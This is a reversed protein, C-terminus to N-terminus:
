KWRNQVAFAPFKGVREPESPPNMEVQPVVIATPNTGSCADFVKEIIDEDFVSNRLAEIFVDIPIANLCYRISMGNSLQVGASETFPITVGGVSLANVFAKYAAIDLKGAKLEHNLVAFAVHLRMTDANRASAPTTLPLEHKEQIM